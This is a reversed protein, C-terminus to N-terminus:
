PEVTIVVRSVSMSPPAGPSVARAGALATTRSPRARRGPSACWSNRRATSSGVPRFTARAAAFSPRGVASQAMSTMSDSRDSAPKSAAGWIRSRTACASSRAAPRADISLAGWVRSAAYADASRAAVGRPSGRRAARTRSRITGYWESSAQLSAAASAPTSTLAKAVEASCFAGAPRPSHSAAAVGLCTAPTPTHGGRRATSRRPRVCPPARAWRGAGGSRRYGPCRRPRALAGDARGRGAAAVGV